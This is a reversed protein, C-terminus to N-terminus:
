HFNNIITNWPGYEVSSRRLKVEKLMAIVTDAKQFLHTDISATSAFCQGAPLSEVYGSPHTVPSYTNGGHPHDRKLLSQGIVGVESPEARMIRWLDYAEACRFAIRPSTWGRCGAYPTRKHHWFVSSQVDFWLPLEAKNTRWLRHVAPEGRDNELQPPFAVHKSSIARGWAVGIGRM